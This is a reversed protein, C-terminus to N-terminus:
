AGKNIWGWVTKTSLHHDYRNIDLEAMKHLHRELRRLERMAQAYSNFHILKVPEDGIIYSKTMRIPESNHYVISISIYKEM